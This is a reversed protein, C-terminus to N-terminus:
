RRRWVVFRTSRRGPHAPDYRIWHKSGVLPRHTRTGTRHEREVGASDTFRLTVRYYDHVNSGSSRSVAVVKAPVLPGTLRVSRARERRRRGFLTGLMAPVM